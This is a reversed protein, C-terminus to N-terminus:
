SNQGKNLQQWQKLHHQNKCVVGYLCLCSPLSLFPKLSRVSNLMHFYMPSPPLFSFRLCTYFALLFFSFFPFISSLSHLYVPFFLWRILLPPHIICHHLHLSLSLSVLFIRSEAQQDKRDKLQTGAVQTNHCKKLTAAHAM